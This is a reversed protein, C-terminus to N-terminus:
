ADLFETNRRKVLGSDVAKSQMLYAVVPNSGNHNTKGTAKLDLSGESQKCLALELMKTRQQSLLYTLHFASGTRKRITHRPSARRSKPRLLM